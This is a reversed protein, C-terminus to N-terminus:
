KSNTDILCNLARVVLNRDEESLRWLDGIPPAVKASNFRDILAQAEKVMDAM